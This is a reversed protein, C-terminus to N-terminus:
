SRTSAQLEGPELGCHRLWKEFLANLTRLKMAQTDFQEYDDGLGSRFLEDMAAREGQDAALLVKRDMDHLHPLTYTHGKYAFDFPEGAAEAEVADLDFPKAPKV